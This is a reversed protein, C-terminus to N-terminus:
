FNEPIPARVPAPPNKKARAAPARAQAAMGLAVCAKIESAPILTASLAEGNVTWNAFVVGDGPPVAKAAGALLPDNAM